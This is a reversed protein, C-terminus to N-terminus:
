RFTDREQVFDTSQFTQYWKMITNQPLNKLYSIDGINMATIIDIDRFASFWSLIWRVFRDWINVISSKGVLISYTTHLQINRLTIYTTDKTKNLSIWANDLGTNIKKLIDNAMVSEGPLLTVFKGLANTLM